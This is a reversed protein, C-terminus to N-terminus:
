DNQLLERVTKSVRAGDARGKVKLMVEKMVKGLDKMEKAGAEAIIERVIKSLEEESLQEPLYKKLIELEQKEKKVLNEIKEKEFASNGRPSLLLIGEEFGLIAEKRKKAESALAVMVEEETLQSQKSLEEENRLDPKEQNIKYRKEKERSQVSALVMRLVSVEIGRKERLAIKLNQKIKDKLM